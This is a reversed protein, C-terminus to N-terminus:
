RVPCHMPTFWRAGCIAVNAALSSTRGQRTPQGKRPKNEGITDAYSQPTQLAYWDLFDQEADHYPFRLAPKTSALWRMHEAVLPCTRLLM